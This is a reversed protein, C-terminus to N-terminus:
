IFLNSQKITVNNTDIVRLTAIGISNSSLYYHILNPTEFSYTHFFLIVFGVRSVNM